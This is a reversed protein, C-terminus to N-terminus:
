NSARKKYLELVEDIKSSIRVYYTNQFMYLMIRMVLTVFASTLVLQLHPIDPSWITLIITIICAVLGFMVCLLLLIFVSHSLLYESNLKEIEKDDPMKDM